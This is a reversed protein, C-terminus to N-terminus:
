RAVGALGVDYDEDELAPLVSVADDALEAVGVEESPGGLDFMLEVRQEPLPLGRDFAQQLFAVKSSDGLLTAGVIKDDRIVISKFVGRRPESFVIHEDTEREPESVGMSSVEVGAVKLKTATRSGLYQAHPDTGTILDALVVAQEWLPAVLGYM